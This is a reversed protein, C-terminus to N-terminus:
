KTYGGLKKRFSEIVEKASQYHSNFDRDAEEKPISSYKEAIYLRLNHIDDVTFNPSIKLTKM